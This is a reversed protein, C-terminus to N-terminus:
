ELRRNKKHTGYDRQDAHLTQGSGQKEDKSSLHKDSSANEYRHQERDREDEKDSKSRKM